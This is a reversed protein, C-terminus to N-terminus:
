NNKSILNECNQTLLEIEDFLKKKEERLIANERELNSKEAVLRQNLDHMHNM